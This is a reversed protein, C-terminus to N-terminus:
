RKGQLDLDKSADFKLAEKVTGAGGSPGSAGGSSAIEGSTCGALGSLALLCAAAAAIQKRIRKM